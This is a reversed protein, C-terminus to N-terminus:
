IIQSDIYINIQHLVPSRLSVSQERPKMFPEVRLVYWTYIYLHFLITKAGFFYFCLLLFIFMFIITLTPGRADCDPAYGGFM